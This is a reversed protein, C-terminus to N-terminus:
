PEKLCGGQCMCPNERKHQLVPSTAKKISPWKYTKQLLSILKNRASKDYIFSRCYWKGNRAFKTSQLILKLIKQGNKTLAEDPNTYPKKFPIAVPMQKLFHFLKWNKGSSFTM